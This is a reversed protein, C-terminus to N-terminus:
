FFVLEVTAGTQCGIIKAASSQNASVELYGSSGELAFIEGYEFSGPSVTRYPLFVDLAKGEDTERVQSGEIVYTFSDGPHYHWTGTGPGAEIVSVTVEKGDCINLDAKYVQTVKSRFLM